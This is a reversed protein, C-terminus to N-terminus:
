AQCHHWMGPETYSTSSLGFLETVTPTESRTAAAPEDKELLEFDDPNIDCGHYSDDDSADDSAYAYSGGYRTTRPSNPGRLVESSFKRSSPSRPGSEPSSSVIKAAAIQTPALLVGNQKINERRRAEFSLTM